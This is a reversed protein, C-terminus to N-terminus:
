PDDGRRPTDMIEIWYSQTSWKRGVSQRASEPAILWALLEPSPRDRLHAVPSWHHAIPVVDDLADHNGFYKWEREPPPLRSSFQLQRDLDIPVWFGERFAEDYLYFEVYARLGQDVFTLWDLSRTSQTVERSSGLYEVLIPGHEQPTLRWRHVEGEGETIATRPVDEVHVFEPDFVIVLRAPIGAARLVATHLNALSLIDAEGAAAAEAAGLPELHINRVARIRDRVSRATIHRFSLVLQLDRRLVVHHAVKTTLHKALLYPPMERSRGATWEDVLERIIPHDSEVLYQPELAWAVEEPFPDMPWTFRQAISEDIRTEYMRYRIPARMTMRGSKYHRADWWALTAGPQFDTLVQPALTANVRDGRFSGVVPRQDRESGATHEVIPILPGTRFGDYAATAASVDRGSVKLETVFTLTQDRRTPEIREIPNTAGAFSWPALILSLGIALALRPPHLTSM